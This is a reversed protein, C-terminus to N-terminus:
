LSKAFIVVNVLGLRIYSLILISRLVYSPRNNVQNTQIPIAVLTRQKKTSNCIHRTSTVVKELLIRSWSKLKHSLKRQLGHRSYLISFVILTVSHFTQQRYFLIQESRSPWRARKVTGYTILHETNSAVSRGINRISSIRRVIFLM